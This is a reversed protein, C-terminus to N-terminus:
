SSGYRLPLIGRLSWGMGCSVPVLRPNFHTSGMESGSQGVLWVCPLPRQRRAECLPPQRLHHCHRYFKRLADELRSAAQDLERLDDRRPDGFLHQRIEKAVRRLGYSSGLQDPLFLAGKAGQEGTLQSAHHEEVGQFGASRLPASHVGAGKTVGEM